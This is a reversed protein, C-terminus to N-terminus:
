EKGMTFREGSVVSMRVAAAAISCNSATTQTSVMAAWRAPASPLGVYRIKCCEASQRQCSARVSQGHYGVMCMKRCGAGPSQALATPCTAFHKYTARVKAYLAKLDASWVRGAAQNKGEM